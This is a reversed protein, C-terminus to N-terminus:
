TGSSIASDALEGSQRPSGVPSIDLRTGIKRAKGRTPRGGRKSSQAVELARTWVSISLPCSRPSCRGRTRRAGAGAARCSRSGRSPSASARRACPRAPPAPRRARALQQGLLLAPRARAPRAATPAARRSGSARRGGRGRRRAARGRSPRRRGRALQGLLQELPQAGVGRSSPQSCCSSPMSRGAARRCRRAGGASPRRPWGRGARASPRSRRACPRLRSDAM